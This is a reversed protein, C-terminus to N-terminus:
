SSTLESIRQRLSSIEELLSPVANCAAVIYTPNATDGKYAQVLLGPIRHRSAVGSGSKYVVEWPGKTAEESLRLLERESENLHELM